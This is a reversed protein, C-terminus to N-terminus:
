QPPVLNVPVTVPLNSTQEPAPGFNLSNVASTVTAQLSALSGPCSVSVATVSGSPTISFSISIRGGASPDSRLLGEYATQIRMKMVNLRQRIESMNRYGLDIAEGSASATFTVQAAQHVAQMQSSSVTEASSAVGGGSGILGTIGGSGGGGAGAVLAQGSTGSALGIGSSAASQLDGIFGAGGGAAGTGYAAFGISQLVDEAASAGAAAGVPGSPGETPAGGATSAVETSPMDSIIEEGVGIEETPPPTEALSAVRASPARRLIQTKSEKVVVILRDTVAGLLLAIALGIGVMVKFKQNETTTEEFATEEHPRTAFTQWDYVAPKVREVKVEPRPEAKPKLVEPPPDAFGFFVEVGSVTFVGQVSKDFEWVYPAGEKEQRIMKREILTSFPIVSGKVEVGGKIEPLLNLVYRNGSPELLTHIRPLGSHKVSVTNYDAEGITMIGANPWIDRRGDPGEVTIKLRRPDAKEEIVAKEPEKKKVPKKEVVPKAPPVIFGFHIVFPGANVAGQDGYHLNLIFNGESDTSFIGLGKLDSFKLKSGDASTVVAEMSDSLRLEWIDREAGPRIFEMSDPIGPAEAVISNNYGSGLRVPVSGPLMKNVVKGDRMVAIALVKREEAAQAM